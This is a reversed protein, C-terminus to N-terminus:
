YVVISRDFEYRFNNGPQGSIYISAATKNKANSTLFETLEAIEKERGYLEDAEAANLVKRANDIKSKPKTAKTAANTQNENKEVLSLRNILSSPSTSENKPCAKRQKPPTVNTNNETSDNEDTINLEIQQPTPSPNRQNRRKSVTRKEVSLAPQETAALRQTSRTTRQSM